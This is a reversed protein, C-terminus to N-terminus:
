KIIYFILGIIVSILSGYLIVPGAITFVKAGVGYVYGERKFEIAPSVISNAFGTIPVMSGAGGFRGIEDYIGLGTLLAGIFVMVTAAAVSAEKNSIGNLTFINIIIQGISCIVGGVFFAALSNKLVPIPPASKQVIRGYRIQNYKKLINQQEILSARVKKIMKRRNKDPTKAELFILYQYDEQLGQNLSQIETDSIDKLVNLNQWRKELRNKIENFDAM